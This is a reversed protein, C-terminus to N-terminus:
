QDRVTDGAQATGSIIDAITHNDEQPGSVRLEAMKLGSRYLFLPQDLKPLPGTPYNLVVFRGNTNVSIVQAAIAYDPTLIPATNKAAPKVIFKPPPKGACGGAVLALSLVLGLRATNMKLGSFNM